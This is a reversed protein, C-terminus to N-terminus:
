VIIVRNGHPYRREFYDKVESTTLISRVSCPVCDNSRIFFRDGAVCQNSVLIAICRSLDTMPPWIFCVLDESDRNHSRIDEKSLRWGKQISTLSGSSLVSSNEDCTKRDCVLIGTSRLVLDTLEGPHLLIHGGSALTVRYYFHLTATDTRERVSASLGTEFRIPDQAFVDPSFNELDAKGGSMANLTEDRRAWKEYGDMISNYHKNRWEIHGPWVHILKAHEARSSPACLTNIFICIGSSSLATNSAVIASPGQLRNLTTQDVFPAIFIESITNIEDEAAKFESLLHYWIHNRDLVSSFNTTQGAGYVSVLGKDIPCLHPDRNVPALLSALKRITRAIAVVCLSDRSELQDETSCNHCTCIMILGRISNDVNQVVTQLSDSVFAAYLSDQLTEVLALEPFLALIFRILGRGYGTPHFAVYSQRYESITCGPVTSDGLALAEYIRAIGGLYAALLHPAALLKSLSAGGFVSSLCIDWPVRAVLYFVSEHAESLMDKFSGLVYSTDTIRMDAQVGELDAYYIRVQADEKDLVTTFIVVGQEDEVYVSLDLLWRAFAAIFACEVGGVISMSEVTGARAM